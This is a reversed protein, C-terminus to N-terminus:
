LDDAPLRSGAQGCAPPRHAPLRVRARLRVPHGHRREDLRRPMLDNSFGGSAPDQWRLLGPMLALSLDHQQLMQAGVILTADRYAWGDDLIRAPGALTGDATRLNRRIWGCIAHAADPEGYLTFTWPARYYKFGDKVEGLSGDANLKEKLWSVARRSAANLEPLIESADVTAPPATM